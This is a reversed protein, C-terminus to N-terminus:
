VFERLLGLPRRMLLSPEIYCRIRCAQQCRGVKGFRRVADEFAARWSGLELISGAIRGRPRCPYLLHGNPLIRPILMPLCTYPALTRVNEYFAYSGSVSAGRRKADIVREVFQRYAPLDRESMRVQYGEHLPSLCLRIRRETCYCLMDEAAALRDGRIVCHVVLDYGYRKQLDAWRDLDGIVSAAVQPTSGIIRAYEDVDLTDLSLVVDTVDRLVSERQRLLVGNTNLSIRDFRLQRAARLLVDIDARVLPEGGTLFVCDFAARLHRLLRTAGDTDLEHTGRGPGPARCIAAGPLGIEPFGECYSCRLNCFPTVHWLPFLPRVHTAGFASARVVNELIPALTRLV